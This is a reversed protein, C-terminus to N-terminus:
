AGIRQQQSQHGEPHTGAILHDGGREREEGGGAGDRAGACPRHEAIDLPVTEIM